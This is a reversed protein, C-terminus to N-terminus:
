PILHGSFVNITSRAIRHFMNSAYVYVGDGKQLDTLCTLTVCVTRNSTSIDEKVLNNGNARISITNTTNDCMKASFRYMGSFPAIFRGRSISYGNGTNNLVNIFFLSYSQFLAALIDNDRIEGGGNGAIFTM